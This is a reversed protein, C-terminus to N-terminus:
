YNIFYIVKEEFSYSDENFVGNITGCDNTICLLLYAM